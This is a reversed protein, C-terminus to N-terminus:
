CVNLVLQSIIRRYFLIYLCMTFVQVTGRAAVTKPTMTVVSFLTFFNFNQRQSKYMKKEGKSAM